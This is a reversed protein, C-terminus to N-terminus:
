GWAGTLRPAGPSGDPGSSRGMQQVSRVLPSPGYSLKGPRLTGRRVALVVAFHYKFLSEPSQWLRRCMCEAVSSRNGRVAKPSVDRDTKTGRAHFRSRVLLADAWCGSTTPLCAQSLCRPKVYLHGTSGAPLM